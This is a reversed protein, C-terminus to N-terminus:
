EMDNPELIFEIFEKGKQVIEKELEIKRIQNDNFDFKKQLIDLFPKVANDLDFRSSVGIKMYFFLSEKKQLDIKIRQKILEILVNDQYLNYQRTKVKRGKLISYAQNASLPKINLKIM